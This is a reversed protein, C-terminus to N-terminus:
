SLVTVEEETVLHPCSFVIVFAGGKAPNHTCPVEGGGGPVFSGNDLPQTVNCALSTQELVDEAAIAPAVYNERADM